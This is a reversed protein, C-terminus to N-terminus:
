RRLKTRALELLPKDSNLKVCEARATAIKVDDVGLQRLGACMQDLAMDRVSGIVDLTVADLANLKKAM